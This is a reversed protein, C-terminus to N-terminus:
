AKLEVVFRDGPLSGPLRIDLGAQHEYISENEWEPAGDCEEVIRRRLPPLYAESATVQYTEGTRINRFMRIWYVM